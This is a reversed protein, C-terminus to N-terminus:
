WRQSPGNEAPDDIALNAFGDATQNYERYIHRVEWAINKATLKQGLKWCDEYYPRLDTSGCTYGDRKAMHKAVVDSDVEFVVHPDGAALARETCKRLGCYEAVNNTEEGYSIYRASRQRDRIELIRGWVRSRGEGLAATAPQRRRISIPGRQETASSTQNATKTKRETDHENLFMLALPM